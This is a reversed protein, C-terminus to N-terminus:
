RNIYISPNADLHGPISFSHRSFSGEFHNIVELVRPVVNDLNLVEPSDPANVEEDSIDHVPPQNDEEEEDSSAQQNGDPADEELEQSLQPQSRVPTSWESPQTSDLPSQAPINIGGLILNEQDRIPVRNNIIRRRKPPPEIVNRAETPPERNVSFRCYPCSTSGHLNACYLQGCSTCTVDFHGPPTPGNCGICYLRCEQLANISMEGLCTLCRTQCVHVIENNIPSLCLPCVSM